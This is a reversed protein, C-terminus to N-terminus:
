NSVGSLVKAVSVVVAIFIFTLRGCTNYIYIRQSFGNGTHRVYTNKYLIEIYDLRYFLFTFNETLVLFISLETIKQFNNRTSQFSTM